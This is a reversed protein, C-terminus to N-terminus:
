NPVAPNDGASAFLSRGRNVLRLASVRVERLAIVPSSTGAPWPFARRLWSIDHFKGQAVLKQTEILRL